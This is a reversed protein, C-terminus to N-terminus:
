QLTKSYQIDEPCHPRSVSVPLCLICWYSSTRSSAIEAEIYIGPGYTSQSDEFILQNCTTSIEFKAYTWISFWPPQILLLSRRHCAFPNNPSRTSFDIVRLFMQWPNSNRPKWKRPKEALQNLSHGESGYLLCFDSNLRLSPGTNLGRGTSGTPLNRWLSHSVCYERYGVVCRWCNEAILM